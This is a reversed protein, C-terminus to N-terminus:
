ASKREPYRFEQAFAAVLAFGAAPTLRPARTKASFILAQGSRRCARCAPTGPAIDCM